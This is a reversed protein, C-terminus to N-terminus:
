LPTEIVELEIYDGTTASCTPSKRKHIFDIYDHVEKMEIEIKDSTKDKLTDRKATDFRNCLYCEWHVHNVFVISGLKEPM